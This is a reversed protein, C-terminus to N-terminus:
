MLFKPLRFSTGRKVAILVRVAPVALVAVSMLVIVLDVPSGTLYTRPFTGFMLVPVAFYVLDFLFHVAIPFLLHSTELLLYAMCVSFSFAQAFKAAAQCIAVGVEFSLALDFSSASPSETSGFLHAFSLGSPLEISSLVHALGFVFAHALVALYLVMEIPLDKRLTRFAWILAYLLVGRFILEELIAAVASERILLVANALVDVPSSFAFVFASASDVFDLGWVLFAYRVAALALAVFASTLAWAAISGVRPPCPSPDLSAQAVERQETNM